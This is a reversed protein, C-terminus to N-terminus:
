RLEDGNWTTLFSLLKDARIKDFLDPALRRFPSRSGSQGMTHFRDLSKSHVVSLLGEARQVVNWAPILVTTTVPHQIGLDNM